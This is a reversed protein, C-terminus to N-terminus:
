QVTHHQDEESSEEKRPREPTTEKVLELANCYHTGGLISKEALITNKIWERKEKSSQEMILTLEKFCEKEEKWASEKSWNVVSIFGYLFAMFGCFILLVVGAKKATDRLRAMTINGSM